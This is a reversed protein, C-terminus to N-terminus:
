AVPAAVERRELAAAHRGALFGFTFYPGITGGGAWYAQASANAACNGVAYLGPIPEGDANLVQGSTNTVPGGKTDLTGACVLAAYYPGQESLPYMTPNGTDNDEPVVGTFIQEIPNQGRHFDEDKGQAAFGNFRAIAKPLNARFSDALRFGGTHRALSELRQEIAGALEELTDGKIVHFDDYILSGYNDLAIRPPDSPTVETARCGDMCRQDWIQFMLLRPYELNRPDYQLFSMALENYITKENVVRNGYKDVWIMSDGAVSFMGSLYPSKQLAIEFPIPCMWAFSMNRLPAGVATAIGVFDGENTRAACGSVIPAALFSKRLEANHTFGGTAFIVAQRAAVLSEGGDAAVQVGVVADEEDVVVGVVRRNTLVPIGHEECAALLQETLVDGKGMEGDGRDIQLTRGYPAAAEAVTSHYDPIAPSYLPRIAGMEALAENAADANDYFAAITEYEWDSLGYPPGSPDYAQPRGLRACYRIFAQKEDPKGDERMFRNNPIWYWAASKKMTGGPEAAKELIAVSAGHKAASLAAPFGGAGAGVVVVDFTDDWTVGAADVIKRSRMM